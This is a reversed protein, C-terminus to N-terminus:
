PSLTLTLAVGIKTLKELKKKSVDISLVLSEDNIGLLGAFAVFSAIDAM